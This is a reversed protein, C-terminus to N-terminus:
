RSRLEDAYIKRLAQSLHFQQTEDEAEAEM